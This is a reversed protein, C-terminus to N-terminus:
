KIICKKYNDTHKTKITCTSTVHGKWNKMNYQDNKKQMCKKKIQVIIFDALSSSPLNFPFLNATKYSRYICKKNKSFFDLKSLARVWSKVSFFIVVFIIYKFLLDIRKKHSSSNKLYLMFKYKKFSFWLQGHDWLSSEKKVKTVIYHKAYNNSSIFQRKEKM